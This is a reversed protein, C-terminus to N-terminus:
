EIGGGVGGAGEGKYMPHTSICQARAQVAWALGEWLRTQNIYLHQRRLCKRGHNTKMAPHDKAIEQSLSSYTRNQLKMELTTLNMIFEQCDDPSHKHFMFSVSWSDHLIQLAQFFSNFYYEPRSGYPFIELVVSCPRMFVSNAEAAGHAAILIDTREMISAQELFSLDEFSVVKSSYNRSHVCKGHARSSSIFAQHFQAITKKTNPLNRIQRTSKRQLITIEPFISGSSSRNCFSNVEKLPNASFSSNKTIEPLALPSNRFDGSTGVLRCPDVQLLHSAILFADSPHVLFFLQFINKSNVIHFDKTRIDNMDITFNMSMASSFQIVWPDWPMGHCGLYDVQTIGNYGDPLTQLWMNVSFYAYICIIFHQFSHITRRCDMVTSKRLTQNMPLDLVKRFFELNVSSDMVGRNWSKLCSPFEIKVPGPPEISSV